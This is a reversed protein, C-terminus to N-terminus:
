ARFSDAVVGEALPVPSTANAAHLDCDALAALTSPPLHVIRVRPLPVRRAYAPRRRPDFM